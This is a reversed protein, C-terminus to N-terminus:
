SLRSIIFLVFNLLDQESSVVMADPQFNFQNTIETLSLLKLKGFKLRAYHCDFVNVKYKNLVQIDIFYQDCDVKLSGFEFSEELPILQFLDKYDKNPDFM